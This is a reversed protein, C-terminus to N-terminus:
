KTAFFANGKDTGWIVFLIALPLLISVLGSGTNDSDGMLAGTTLIGSIIIRVAAGITLWLRAWPAGAMVGRAVFLFFLAFLLEVIAVILLVMTDTQGLGEAVNDFGAAVFYLVSGALYAFAQIYVLIGVFTILGPRAPATTTETM